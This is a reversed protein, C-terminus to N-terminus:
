PKQMQERMIILQPFQMIAFRTLNQYQLAKAMRLFRQATTEFADAYSVHLKWGFWRINNGNTNV